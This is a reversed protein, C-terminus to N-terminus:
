WAAQFHFQRQGSIWTSTVELKDNLLTFNTRYNPAIRGLENDLGLFAAPYLSAMRLAEELSLHLMEITNRVAAAMNLHSGALVGDKTLCKGDRVEIMENYLEFCADDAGVSPMADTILMIKGLAKAQQAVRMMVPDVHHGDVILGCWTDPDDLAAGVVGPGRSEMAPMANFLHTFGRLGDTLASQIQGHNANTHGASVLVGADGLKAITGDPLTEPAVTVVVKGLDRQTFLDFTADDLPRIKNANHAGKRAVNLNPGEFHIGIVGSEPDDLCAAVADAGAKMIAFDDSVITPLFSTTGFKRHAEAIARIGGVNASKNFLVGGGGNVQVDIFGPVLLEGNLDIRDNDSPLDTNKIIEAVKGEEILLALNDRIVDGDFVRM